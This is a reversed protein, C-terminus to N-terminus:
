AIGKKIADKCHTTIVTILEGGGMYELRIVNRYNNLETGEFKSARLYFYGEGILLEHIKRDIGDMDSEKMETYISKEARRTKKKTKM